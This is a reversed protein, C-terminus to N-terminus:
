GEWQAPGLWLLLRVDQGAWWMPLSEITVGSCDEMPLGDVYEYGKAGSGVPLDGEWQNFNESWATRFGSQDYVYLDLEDPRVPDWEVKMHLGAWSKKSDVWVNFYRTDDILPGRESGAWWWVAPGHEYEIVIPNKKTAKDTVTVIEEDPVDSAKPSLAESPVKPKWDPCGRPAGGAGPAFVLGVLLSTLGAVLVRHKRAGSKEVNM